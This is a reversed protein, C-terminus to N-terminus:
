WWSSYWVKRNMLLHFFCDCAFKLDDEAIEPHSPDYGGGFFFGDVPKLEKNKIAKIFKDLVDFTIEVQQCNFNSPDTDGTQEAYLKQFFDQIHSCKRWYKFDVADEQLSHEASDTWRAYQDLGM